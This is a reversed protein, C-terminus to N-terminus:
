QNVTATTSNNEFALWMASLEMGATNVFFRCKLVMGDERGQITFTKDFQALFHENVNLYEEAGSEIFGDLVDEESPPCVSCFYQMDANISFQVLLTQGASPQLPDSSVLTFNYEIQGSIRYFSNGVPYPDILLRQLDILGHKNYNQTKNASETSLPDNISNEQCGMAFLVALTVLTVFLTKM